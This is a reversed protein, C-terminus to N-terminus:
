HSTAGLFDKVRYQHLRLDSQFRVKWRRRSPQQHKFIFENRKKWINWNAFVFVEM